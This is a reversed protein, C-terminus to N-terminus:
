LNEKFFTVVRNMIEDKLASHKYSMEYGHGNDTTVKYITVNSYAHACDLSTKPEVVTDKTNYYMMVPKDGFKYGTLAPNLEYYEDFWRESFLLKGRKYKKGGAVEQRIHNWEEEGGVYHILAYENGAPAILFMAKFDFGGWSENGMLMAVRGGFSRGYLGLRDKDVNYHELAYNILLTNSELMDTLTYENTRGSKDKALAKSPDNTLCRNFDARVAAIGERALMESLQRAGGSNMSGYIGHSISVLPYPGDTDPAVIECYTYTGDENKLFVDETIIGGEATVGVGSADQSQASQTEGCGTLAFAFAICLCLCLAAAIGAAASKNRYEKIRKTRRKM